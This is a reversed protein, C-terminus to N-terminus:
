RMHALGTKLYGWGTILTLITALWLLVSGALFADANLPAAILLGLAFMQATTKWKALKTVPMKIKKPALYERLGSVLFERTIILMVAPLNSGNAFGTDVLALLLIIVYIKDCIPDLFTGFPTIQNFKRAVWGDLFDTVAGLTYLGLAAWLLVPTGDYLFLVIFPLFGLRALTLINAFTWM